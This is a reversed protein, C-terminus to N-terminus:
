KTSQSNTASPNTVRIPNLLKYLSKGFSSIFKSILNILGM